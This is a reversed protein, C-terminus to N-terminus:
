AREREAQAKALRLMGHGALVPVAFLPLLGISSGSAALLAGGIMVACAVLAVLVTVAFRIRPTRPMTPDDTRPASSKVGGACWVCLSGPDDDTAVDPRSGIVNMGDVLWRAM